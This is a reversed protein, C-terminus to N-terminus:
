LFITFVLGLRCNHRKGPLEDVLSEAVLLNCRCVRSCIRPGLSERHYQPHITITCFNWSKILLCVQQPKIINANPTRLMHVLFTLAKLQASKYEHYAAKLADGGGEAVFISDESNWTVCEFKSVQHPQVYRSFLKSSVQCWASYMAYSPPTRNCCLYYICGDCHRSLLIM